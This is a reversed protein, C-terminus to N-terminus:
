ECAVGAFLGLQAGELGLMGRWQEIEADSPTGRDCWVVRTVPQARPLWIAWCHSSTDAKGDGTFSVRGRLWLLVDPKLDSRVGEGWWTVRTLMAGVVGHRRAHAEIRVAFAELERGYPPNAIVHFRPWVRTLANGTLVSRVQSVAYLDDAFQPLMEIAVWPHGDGLWLPLAGRGACPDLMSASPDIVDRLYHRLPIVAQPPTPYYQTPNDSM